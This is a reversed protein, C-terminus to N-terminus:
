APGPTLTSLGASYGSPGTCELVGDVLTLTVWTGADIPDPWSSTVTLIQKEYVVQLNGTKDDDGHEDLSPGFVLGRRNARSEDAARGMTQCLGRAIIRDEIGHRDKSIEQDAVGGSNVIGNDRAIQRDNDSYDRIAM